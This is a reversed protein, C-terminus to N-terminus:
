PDDQVLLENSDPYSQIRSMDYGRWASCIGLKACILRDGGYDKHGASFTLLSVVVACHCSNAMKPEHMVFDLNQAPRFFNM